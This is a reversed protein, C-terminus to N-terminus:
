DLDNEDIFKYVENSFDKVIDQALFLDINSTMICLFYPNIPHYVIGCDHVLDFREGHKHAVQIEWPVGASILKEVRTETLFTLIMESYEPSLYTSYYLAKFIRSFQRPTVLQKEDIQIYPNEIGIHTFVSNIEEPLLQRKLVNKATNDSLILMLKVLEYISKEEGVKYREDVGALPDIDEEIIKIKKELDLEKNEVKKFISMAIPVKLLSAPIFGEKENIGLWTGTLIDQLYFGIKQSEDLQLTSIKSELNLRLPRFHLIIKDSQINSDINTNNIKKILNYQNGTSTFQKLNNVKYFLFINGAFSLIFLIFLIKNMLLSKLMNKM